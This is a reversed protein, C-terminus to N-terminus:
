INRTRYSHPAFLQAATLRLRDSAREARIITLLLFNLRRYCSKGVARDTGSETRNNRTIFARFYSPLLELKGHPVISIFVGNLELPRSVWNKREKGRGASNEATEVAGIRELRRTRKMSSDFNGVFSNGRSPNRPNGRITEKIKEDNVRTRADEIGIRRAINSSISLANYVVNTCFRRVFNRFKNRSNVRAGRLFTESEGSSSVPTILM